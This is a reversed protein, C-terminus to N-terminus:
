WRCSFVGKTLAECTTGMEPGPNRNCVYTGWCGSSACGHDEGVRECSLPEPTVNPAVCLMHETQCSTLCSDRATAGPGANAPCAAACADLEVACPDATPPTTQGGCAVALLALVLAIISRNM